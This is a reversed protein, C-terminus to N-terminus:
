KKKKVFLIDDEVAEIDFSQTMTDRLVTIKVPPFLGNKKNQWYKKNSEKSLTEIQEPTFQSIDLDNIKVIKDGAKLGMKEAPSDKLLSSVIRSNENNSVTFGYTKNYMPQKSSFTMQRKKWDLTVAFHHLIYNGLFGERSPRHIVWFNDIALNEGITLGKVKAANEVKIEQKKNNFIVYNNSLQPLSDALVKFLTTPLIVSFSALTAVAIDCHYNQHIRLSVIPVGYNKYRTRFSVIQKNGTYQLSDSHSAIIIKENPYDMQWLSFSMLNTGIVGDIDTCSCSNDEVNAVEM